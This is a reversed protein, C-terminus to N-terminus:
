FRIDSKIKLRSSTGALMFDGESRVSGSTGGLMVERSRKLIWQFRSQCGLNGSANNFQQYHYRMIRMSFLLNANVQYITTNFDEQPLQVRNLTVGGGAFVPVGVKWNLKANIDRSRGNSFGETSFTGERWIKRAGKTKYRISERWWEHTGQPIVFISFIRFDGPLDFTTPTGDRFEGYWTAERIKRLPFDVDSCSCPVM